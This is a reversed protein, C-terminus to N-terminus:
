HELAKINLSINCDAVPESNIDLAYNVRVEILSEQVDVRMEKTHVGMMLEGYPTEYETMHIKDKEFIMHTNTLGSKIIELKEEGTIRVKNKIVGPVGEVLEDYLVYHKGNKLYYAAPTIMEIPENEENDEYDDANGSVEYHLGSISLLVDKTM